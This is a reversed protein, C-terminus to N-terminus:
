NHYMIRYIMAYDWALLVHYRDVSFHIPQLEKTPLPFRVWVELSILTLGDWQVVQPLSSHYHTAFRFIFLRSRSKGHGRMIAPHKAQDCGHM